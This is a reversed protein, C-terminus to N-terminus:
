SDDGIGRVVRIREAIMQSDGQYQEARGIVEVIDGNGVDAPSSVFVDISSPQSIVIVQGEGASRVSEVTGYVKLAYPETGDIKGIDISDISSFSSVLFLAFLGIVSCLLSIRLLTRENM